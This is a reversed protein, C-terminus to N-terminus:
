HAKENKEAVKETKGQRKKLADKKAKGFRKKDETNLELVLINSPKIPYRSKSGDKKLFEIKSIYVTGKKINVKEIKGEKKSFQGRMVKVTDGVRVRISRKKYKERLEKSLHSSMFKSMLHLPAKAIYKRQKRPQKSKKWTKVFDKKM